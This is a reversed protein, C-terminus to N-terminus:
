KNTKKTPQPMQKARIYSRFSGFGAQAVLTELDKNNNSKLALLIELEKLRYNNIYQNFNIGYEENIFRSIYTRNQELPEVLDTIKFNPNLYPKNKRFYNELQKTTLTNDTGEKETIVRRKRTYTKRKLSTGNALEGAPYTIIGSRNELTNISTVDTLFLLLYNRRIINYAMTIHAVAILLTIFTDGFFKLVCSNSLIQSIFAVVIALIGISVLYWLWLTYRRCDHKYHEQIKKSYFYLRSAILSVYVVLYIIRLFYKSISFMSYFKYEPDPIGNGQIIAYRVEYPVFFSWSFFLFFIILPPLYHWMPFRESRSTATLYFIIHYLCVSALLLSLYYFSNVYVFLSYSYNLLITGGWISFAFLFYFVALFKIRKEYSNVNDRYTLLMLMVCTVSSYVPITCIVVDLVNLLNTENNM